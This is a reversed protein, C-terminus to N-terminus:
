LMMWKHKLIEIYNLIYSSGFGEIIHLGVNKLGFLMTAYYYIDFPTIFVTKIQYEEKLSLHHNRSYCDLLYLMDCGFISDM